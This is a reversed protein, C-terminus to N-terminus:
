INTEKIINRLAFIYTITRLITRYRSRFSFAWKSEGHIRKGFNVPITHIRYGNVKAMYLLYLDLSFDDPAKSMKKLFSRHFLKPQANIDFLCKRLVVSAICSMGLTFAWEGFRRHIRRGKMIVQNPQNLKMFATYATLVDAPDTQMDAHTWALVEGKANRLGTMIGHGYGINTAVTVVRAFQYQPKTLEQTFIAPSEDTSGNNVLIVEMQDRGRVAVACRQLILPINKVENYCPIIISLQM